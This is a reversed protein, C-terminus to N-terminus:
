RYINKDHIEADFVNHVVILLDFLCLFIWCRKKSRFDNKLHTQFNKGRKIVNAARDMMLAANSASNIRAIKNAAHFWVFAAFRIQAFTVCKGALLIDVVSTLEVVPVNGFMSKASQQWAITLAVYKQVDRFIIAVGFPAAITREMCVLAPAM